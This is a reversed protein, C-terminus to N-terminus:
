TALCARFSAELEARNLNKGIFVLKNVRKEGEQWPRGNGDESSSFQLLMHVGQFVHRCLLWGFPLHCVDVCLFMM